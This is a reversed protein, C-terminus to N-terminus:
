TRDATISISDATITITDVTISGTDVNTPPSSWDSNRGDGVEYSVEVEVASSVPVFGTELIISPGADIDSYQQENWTAAGVVRWRAFWTLDSRDAAAVTIRIRAGPSGASTADSGFFVASSVVPPELPIAAVRNGVPAPEGEETEPNWSDINPDASIWNFTIGGTQMNRKVPSMIEVPGDFFTTGADILQLTVFRQGIAIRGGANTTCTGRKPAMAKSMYRKALRRAQSHTGVQNALQDALIKGRASIDDDDEWADTDVVNYDHNASVYTVALQNLASEEEIGDQMSYAIIQDPGITVTPAYYRGSYVVLAGDSRPAIWGDCCALLNAVVGKHPDTHKHAVCSRYRPETAPSGSDSAWTVQSGVPHTNSVESTLGVILGSISGVTRTETLSTDGTASIVITMGVELGNVSSLAITHDSDPSTPATLIAQVGKLPVPIDCDDAAATWYALTPAFHTDWDKNDRVLEYHALHLIANETFTWTSPDTVSQAPDRWDYCLQRDMVLSLPMQNPGGTPFIMQYYKSKTSNTLVCATVVGDGRHASTWQDPIKAIVQSFATETAEGMRTFVKVIDSDQGFQGAEGAQVRGDGLVVIKTDALYYGKIASVKGDHFAGVDIATGNTDTVYLSYAIWHRGTGYGSTRPPISSKLAGETQEPKPTKALTGAIRAAGFAVLEPQLTVIGIAAIVTGSIINGVDQNILSIPSTLINIITKGM